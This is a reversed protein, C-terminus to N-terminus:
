NAEGIMAVLLSQNFFRVLAEGAPRTVQGLTYAGVLPIEGLEERLISELQHPHTELLMQWALDVFVVALVPRAGKLGLLAQRVAQRANALCMQADGVMLHATEGEGIGANMRFSGDVEVQLPSRVIREPRHPDVELGLPYLRALQTHPPFAWERAPVGFIRAYAEAAPVGDLNQLWVTRAKTVTFHIGTDQWGQAQSTSMRLRGGLALGSLAGNSWQSGGFQYTKGQHVEGGALGGAVPLDLQTMAPLAQSTDGQIGDAALLLGKWGGPDMLSKVLERGAAASDRGFQPQWVTQVKWDSGSLVALIVSRPQESDTSFPRSASMGWVPLGGPLSGLGGFVEAMPYEQAAFVIAAVPRATGLRELAAQVAQRAAERGDIGQGSGWAVGRLIAMM